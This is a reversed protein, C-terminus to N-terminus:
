HHYAQRSRRRLARGDRAEFHRGGLGHHPIWHFDNQPTKGTILRHDDSDAGRIKKSAPPFGAGLEQRISAAPDLHCRLRRARAGVPLGVGVPQKPGHRLSNTLLDSRIEGAIFEIRGVELKRSVDIALPDSARLEATKEYGRSHLSYENM